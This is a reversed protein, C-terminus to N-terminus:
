VLAPPGRRLLDSLLVRLPGAPRPATATVVLGPVAARPTVARARTFVSRIGRGLARLLREGGHLALVTAIAALVHAALMPADPLVLSGLDHGLHAVHHGHLATPDAGATLAFATHFLAQSTLVTAGVRWAALGRGALAVAFPSALVGVAVVLGPAPAGGGALTHATAAVITAVWAAATGRLARVHRPTM